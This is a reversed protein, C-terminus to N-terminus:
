VQYWARALHITGERQGLRLILRDKMWVGKLDFAAKQM